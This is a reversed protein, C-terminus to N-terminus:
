LEGKKVKADPPRIYVPLLNLYNDKEGASLRLKGLFAVTSGRIIGHIESAWTFPVHLKETIDDKYNKLGQGIFNCKENINNLEEALESTKYLCSDRVKIIEDGNYRYFGAYIEGKRADILPVMLGDRVQLQFVLAELSNIGALNIGTVQSLSRATVLGLRAGTFSGPGITVAIGDLESLKIDKAELLMKIGPIVRTLQTMRSKITWEGLIEDGDILGTSCWNTGTDFGLIKM